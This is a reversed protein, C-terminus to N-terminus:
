LCRVFSQIKLFNSQHQSPFVALFTVGGKDGGGGGWIAYVFIASKGVLYFIFM